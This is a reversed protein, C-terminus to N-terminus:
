LLRTKRRERRCVREACRRELLGPRREGDRIPRLLASLGDRAILLSMRQRRVDDNEAPAHRSPDRYREGLRQSPAPEPDLEENYHGGRGPERVQQGTERREGGVDTAKNFDLACKEVAQQGAQAHLVLLVPSVAISAPRNAFSKVPENGIARAAAPM